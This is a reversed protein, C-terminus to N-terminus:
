FRDTRLIEFSLVSNPFLKTFAGMSIHLLTKMLFIPLDVSGFEYSSIILKEKIQLPVKDIDILEIMRVDDFVFSEVIIHNLLLTNQHHLIKGKWAEVLNFNLSLLYFKINIFSSLCMIDSTISPSYYM